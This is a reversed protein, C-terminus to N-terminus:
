GTGAPAAGTGTTAEAQVARLLDAARFPKRVLTVGPELIGQDTMLPAAYGSMYLVRIDPRLRSVQEALQPGNMGPMVVDSLLIDISGPYSEAVALAATGDRGALVEYGAGALVQVAVERVGDEDEAVLVTRGSARGVPVDPPPAEPPSETAPLYLHVSTGTGPVSEIALEGGAQRLVGFVTALGLGDHETRAHTTFFPETAQRVVDPGMGHGTDSITVRAYRGPGVAGAADAQRAVQTADTRVLVEGGGSMADRANAVVNVLSRRFQAEDISVYPVGPGLDTRLVFEPGLTETLEACTALVVGNVDIVSPTVVERGGFTLL